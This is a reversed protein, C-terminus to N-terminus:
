LAGEITEAPDIVLLFRTEGTGEIPPSRHVLGSRPREPWLSGRLLIPSGTEVQRIQEPADSGNTIGFQTGSGRYTCILRAKMADVHFKRCSNTTVASFRVRLYPMSMVAAFRSALYAIDTRLWAREACDDLDAASFVQDVADEVAEPRLALRASPLREAGLGNIWSQFDGPVDRRWVVAACDIETIAALRDPEGVIRVMEQAQGIEAEALSM